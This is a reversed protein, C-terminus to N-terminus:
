TASYTATEIRIRIHLNMQRSFYNFIFIWSTTIVLIERYRTSFRRFDFIFEVQSRLNIELESSRLIFHWARKIGQM